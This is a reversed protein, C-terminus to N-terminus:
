SDPMKWGGIDKLTKKESSIPVNQYTRGAEGNPCNSSFVLLAGAPSPPACDKPDAIPMDRVVALKPVHAILAAIFVVVLRLFGMSALFHLCQRGSLIITLPM